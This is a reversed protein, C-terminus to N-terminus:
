GGETPGPLAVIELWYRGLSRMVEVLGAFTVPKTIFSSSGLDYSRLIDEEARSTTLIVVPISRLEPTTKIQRLAERGDMRPMNLDLLILGPRPAELPPAYPGERRLFDLLEQGDEVFYLLNSIRAEQLAERAMLRDDPDDDAMLISIPKRVM